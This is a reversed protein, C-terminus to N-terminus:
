HSESPLNSAEPAQSVDKEVGDVNKFQDQERGPEKEGKEGM